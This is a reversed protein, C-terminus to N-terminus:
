LREEIKYQKTFIDLTAQIAPTMDSILGWISDRAPNTSEPDIIFLVDTSAGCAIDVAEVVGYRDSPSMFGFTLDITRYANDRFVQTQGGRTKTLVSRDVRQAQWNYGFNIGFVTRLGIVLRGIQIDTAGPDAFDFRVYRGSVAADLLVPQTGYNQDVAGTVDGSDYLEGAAGSSDTASVRVRSVASASLSCGLLYITDISQASGLDVILYESASATTKWKRSVHPNQMLSAPCQVQASSPTLTADDALNLYLIAANSM